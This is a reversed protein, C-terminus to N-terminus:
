PKMIEGNYICLAILNLSVIETISFLVPSWERVRMHTNSFLNYCLVGTFFGPIGRLFGYNIQFSNSVSWLETLSVIIMLGYWANRSRVQNSRHIYVVLSGFVLYAMM